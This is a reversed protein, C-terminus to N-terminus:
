AVDRVSKWEDWENVRAGADPLLRVVSRRSQADEVAERDAGGTDNTPAELPAATSRQMFM